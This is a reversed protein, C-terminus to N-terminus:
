RSGQIRLQGNYKFRACTRFSLDDMFLDDLDEGAAILHRAPDTCCCRLDLGTFLTRSCVSQVAGVRCCMLWIKYILLRIQRGQCIQISVHFDVIEGIIQSINCTGRFQKYRPPRKRIIQHPHTEQLRNGIYFWEVADLVEYLTDTCLLLMMNVM